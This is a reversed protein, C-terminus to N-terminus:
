FSKKLCFIFFIKHIRKYACYKRKAEVKGGGPPCLTVALHHRDCVILNTKM